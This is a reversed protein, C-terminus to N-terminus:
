PSHRYAPASWFGTLNDYPACAVRVAARGSRSRPDSHLKEADPPHSYPRPPQVNGPKKNVEGGDVAIRLGMVRGFQFGSARM